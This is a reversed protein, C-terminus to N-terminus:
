KACGGYEPPGSPTKSPACELFTVGARTVSRNKTVGARTVSRNKTVGAINLIEEYSSLGVFFVGEGCLRLSRLSGCVFRKKRVEEQEANDAGRRHIVEINQTTLYCALRNCFKTVVWSSKTKSGTKAPSPPISAFASSFSPMTRAGM